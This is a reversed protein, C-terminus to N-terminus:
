RDISRVASASDEFRRQITGGGDPVDLRRQGVNIQNM